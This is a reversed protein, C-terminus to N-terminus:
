FSINYKIALNENSIEMNVAKTLKFSAKSGLITATMPLVYNIIPTPISKTATKYVTEYQEVIEKNYYAYQNLSESCGLSNLCSFVLILEQM